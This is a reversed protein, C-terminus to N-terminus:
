DLCLIKVEAGQEKCSSILSSIFWLIQIVENKREVLEGDRLAVLNDELRSKSIFNLVLYVVKRLNPKQLQEKYFNLGDNLSTHEPSRRLREINTQVSENNNNKIKFKRNWKQRKSEIRHVPPVLNGLNKQAQGVVDQFKSASLGESGYKSHYFEVVGESVAIHDAWENGLDDLFLYPSDTNVINEVKNFISCSSFNESSTTFIGKESEVESLEDCPQFISMFSGINSLLQGNEFLKKSNYAIKPDDFTVVFCNNKNIYDQLTMTEGDSFSLTITKFIKSTIKISKKLVKLEIVVLDSLLGHKSSKAKYKNGETTIDLVQDYKAIYKLLDFRLEQESGISVQLLSNTNFAEILPNLKFLIGTPSLSQIRKDFSIPLAFSDIFSDYSTFNTIDECVGAIWECFDAIKVKGSHRNIKATSLSLSFLQGDSTIRMNKIAYNNAGFTSFSSELALAEVSKSRLASDSVDLNDLSLKHFKSDEGAYLRSLTSYDIDDLYVDLEDSATINKKSIVIYDKYEFILIYCFKVEFEGPIPQKFFSPKFKKKFVCITLKAIYDKVNFDVREEKIAASRTMRGKSLKILIDTIATDSLIKNAKKKYFYAGESIELNDIM